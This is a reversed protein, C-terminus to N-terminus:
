KEVYDGASDLCKNYRMVRTQMGTDFWDVAPQQLWKNVTTEVEADSHFQKGALFRKM